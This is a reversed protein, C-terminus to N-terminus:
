AAQKRRQQERQRRAQNRKAAWSFDGEVEIQKSGPIRAYTIPQFAQDSAWSFLSTECGTMGDTLNDSVDSIEPAVPLVRIETSGDHLDQKGRFHALIKEVARNKRRRGTMPTIHEVRKCWRVFPRGGAMAHSWARLARREADDDVLMVWDLIRHAQSIETPSPDEKFQEWFEARFISHGDDDEKLLRCADAKPDASRRDGRRHGWNRMDIDTHIYPLQQARLPAPGVRGEALERIVTEAGILQDQIERINM